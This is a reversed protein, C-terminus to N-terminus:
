KELSRNRKAYILAVAWETLSKPLISAAWVGAKNIFGPVVEGKKNFLARIAITAVVDANMGMKDATKQVAQMGAREIFGTRVPGPSLCTVSVGSKKLEFRLGRSFLLLFSKSAAYLSLTPVAQYAATSAVNLIYSPTHQKLVPLLRYTLNVPLSMNVQLMNQQESLSLQDFNGWVGFGANNILVSVPYANQLCWEFVLEDASPLSLDIAKYNVLVSYKSRLEEALSKLLDESRAVLLLNYNRQALLIAFEKGIGKSAGTILAYKM